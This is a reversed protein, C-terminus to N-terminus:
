LRWAEMLRTAIREAGQGDVVCRGAQSMARRRTYSCVTTVAHVLVEATLQDIRPLRVIAGQRALVKANHDMKDLIPIVIGPLGRACGEYMTGGGTTIAADAQDMLTALAAPAIPGLLRVHVPYQQAIASIVARHEFLPGIVITM